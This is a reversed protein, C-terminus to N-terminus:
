KVEGTITLTSSIFTEVRGDAYTLQVDYRYTGYDLKTEESTLTFTRSDMPINKELIFEYDERSLYSKSLAFRCSDGEQTEYEEDEDADSTKVRIGITLVLTDGRTLKIKDGDITLM